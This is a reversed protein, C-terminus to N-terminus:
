GRLRKGILMCGGVLVTMAFFWTVLGEPIPGIRGIAWGGRDDPHQTWQVYRVLSNLEEDSIQQKSFKPMVYPGIRVAEAIQTATADGLPPPVAGTVYGGRAVIQHCGACHTAFLHQGGALSGREPHPKPIPPGTGLSAVYATVAAIQEPGLLLRSRRPQLGDRKLPMYGTSLYFDAALAGVNRLSPGLGAQTYQDRGPGGGVRNDTSRLQGAGNPGHCMVCYRGYVRLGQKVKASPAALAASPLALVLLVVLLRRSM